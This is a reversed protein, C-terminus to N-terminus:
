QHWREYADGASAVSGFANYKALSCSCDQASNITCPPRPLLRSADLLRSRDASQRRTPFRWGCAGSHRVYRENDRPRRVRQGCGARYGAPAHNAKVYSEQAAKRDRDARASSFQDRDNHRFPRVVLPNNERKIGVHFVIRWLYPCTFDRNKRYSWSSRSWQEATLGPLMDPKKM